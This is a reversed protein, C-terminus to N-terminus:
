RCIKLSELRIKRKLSTPAPKDLLKLSELHELPELSELSELKELSELFRKRWIACLEFHAFCFSMWGCLFGRSTAVFQM